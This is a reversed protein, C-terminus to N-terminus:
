TCDNTIKGGALFLGWQWDIAKTEIALFIERAYLHSYFLSSPNLNWFGTILQCLIIQEFFFGASFSVLPHRELTTSLLVAWRWTPKGTPKAALFCISSSGEGQYERRSHSRSAKCKKETSRVTNTGNQDPVSQNECFHICKKISFSSPTFIPHTQTDPLLQPIHTISLPFQWSLVAPLKIGLSHGLFEIM